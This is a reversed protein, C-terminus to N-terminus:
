VWGEIDTAEFLVIEPRIQLEADLYDEDLETRVAFDYLQVKPAAELFVDRTIGSMRWHDQDELYSGDSWQSVQFVLTNNRGTLYPSIDFEAPLRNDEGYGVYQGNVWVTLASSVAGVHLTIQYNAWDKPISIKKKYIGTPNYDQPIYPPKIGKKEWIQHTLRQWPKGYGHLEWNSPVPIDKWGKYAYGPKEIGRPVKAPAEFYAFDWKGNLIKKRPSADRNAAIALEKTPYSISTTRAPLKNVNVVEPNQWNPKILSQASLSWTSFLLILALLVTPRMM